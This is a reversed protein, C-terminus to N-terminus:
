YHLASKITILYSITLYFFNYNDLIIFLNSTFENKLIISCPFFINIDIHLKSTPYYGTCLGGLDISNSLDIHFWFKLEFLYETKCSLFRESREYCGSFSFSFLTLSSLFLSLSFLILASLQFLSPM